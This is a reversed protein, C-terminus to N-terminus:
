APPLDFLEGEVHYLSWTEITRAYGTEFFDKGGGGEVECVCEKKQVLKSKNYRIYHVEVVGSNSTAPLDFSLAIFLTLTLAYPLLYQTIKRM